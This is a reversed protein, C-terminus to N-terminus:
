SSWPKPPMWRPSARAKARPTPVCCAACNPRSASTTGIYMTHLCPVDFGTLWMDRVIVLKLPDAADKFRRELLKKTANNYIHPQLLAQDAASGTMVVKVAGQAPDNSHWGPRLDVIAKYLRACIERSMAVVMGKGVVAENRAEFHQVIDAAVQNVRAEAGVLKELAAWRTKTAEKLAADEEDEFVEEVEANMQEMASQNLNLKALRSEYFIPVTAGDDVADQIDYISVYDGFM